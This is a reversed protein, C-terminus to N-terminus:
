APARLESFRVVGRMHWNDRRQRTERSEYALGMHHACYPGGDIPKGAGCFHFDEAGPHGIPWKCMRETLHAIQVRGSEPLAVEGVALDIAPASPSRASQAGETGAVQPLASPARADAKPPPPLRSAAENRKKESANSRTDGGRAGKFRLGLRWALGLVANRSGLDTTVAVQAASLGKAIAETLIRYSPHDERTKANGFAGAM